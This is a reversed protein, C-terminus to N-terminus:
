LRRGTRLRMTVTSGRLVRTGAQPSQMWVWAGPAGTDGVFQPKLDAEEVLRAANAPDLERVLPVTTPRVEVPKITGFLALDAREGGLVGGRFRGSGALAVAGFIPGPDVPAGPPEHTSLVLSLESSRLFRNSHSFRLTIPLVIAGDDYTGTGGGSRTITTVNSGIPTDVRDTRIVPFDTITVRGSGDFLLGVGELGARFPGPAHQFTTSLRATGEFRAASLSQPLPADAIAEGLQDHLDDIQRNLARVQLLVFPRVDPAAEELTQQLAARERELHDLEDEVTLDELALLM